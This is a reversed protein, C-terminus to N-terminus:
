TTFLLSCLNSNFNLDHRSYCVKAKDCSAKYLEYIKSQIASCAAENKGLETLDPLFLNLGELLGHNRKFLTNMTRIFSVADSRCSPLPHTVSFCSFSGVCSLVLLIVHM